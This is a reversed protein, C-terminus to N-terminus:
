DVSPLFYRVDEVPGKWSYKWNSAHEGGLLRSNLWAKWAADQQTNFWSLFASDAVCMINVLLLQHRVPVFRFNVLQVSPWLAGETVFAPLFDRAVDRRVTALSKGGALGSYTFWALLHVPGFLLTDALVKAALFRVSNPRLLLRQAVVHDLGFAAGFGATTVVRRWDLGGKVSSRAASAGAGEESGEVSLLQKQKRRKISHEIRQALCDGIGWLLASSAIQTRVPAQSLRALYWAWKKMSRVQFERPM